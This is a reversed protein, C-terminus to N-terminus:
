SPQHCRSGPKTLRLGLVEVEEGAKIDFDTDGAEEDDKEIWVNIDQKLTYNGSKVTKKAGNAEFLFDTGEVYVEFKNKM